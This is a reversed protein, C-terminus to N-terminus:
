DIDKYQNLNEMFMFAPFSSATNFLSYFVLRFADM